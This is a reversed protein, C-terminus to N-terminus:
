DLIGFRDLSSEFTLVLPGNRVLRHLVVSVCMKFPVVPLSPFIAVIHNHVVRQYLSNCIKKDGSDIWTYWIGM